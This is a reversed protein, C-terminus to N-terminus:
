CTTSKNLRRSERGAQWSLLCRLRFALGYEGRFRQPEFGIRCVNTTSLQVRWAWLMSTMM